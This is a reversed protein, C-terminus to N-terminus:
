RRVWGVDHWCTELERVPKPWTEIYTVGEPGATMTYPTGARSLFFDGPGVRVTQPEGAEYHEINYEGAFVFLMEDVNHHHRPVTFDPRVRLPNRNFRPVDIPKTTVWMAGDFTAAFDVPADRLLGGDNWFYQPHGQQDLPMPVWDADEVLDGFTLTM